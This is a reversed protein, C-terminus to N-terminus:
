PSSEKGLTKASLAASLDLFSNAINELIEATLHIQDNPSSAFDELCAEFMKASNCAGETLSKSQPDLSQCLVLAAEIRSACLYGTHVRQIPINDSRETM